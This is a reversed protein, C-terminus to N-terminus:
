VEEQEKRKRNLGVCLGVLLIGLASCSTAVVSFKLGGAKAAAEQASTIVAETSSLLGEYAATVADLKSTNVTARDAQAVKEYNAMLQKYKEVDAFTFKTNFKDLEVNIANPNYAPTFNICIIESENYLEDAAIKVYIKQRAQEENFALENGETWSGDNGTASVYITHGEAKGVVFVKNYRVDLDDITLYDAGRVGKTIEFSVECSGTYNEGDGEVLVSYIGIEVVESVVEDNKKVVVTFGTGSSKVQIADIQNQGNYPMTANRLEITSMSKTNIQLNGYSANVVNYNVAKDGCAVLKVQNEFYGPNSLMTNPDVTEFSYQVNDEAIFELSDTVYTFGTGTPSLEIDGYGMIFNDVNVSVTRKEITFTYRQSKNANFTYNDTNEIGMLIAYYEGANIPQLDQTSNYLVVPTIIDGNQIGDFYVKVDKATADYILNEAVDVRNLTLLRKTVAVSGTVEITYNDAKAGTLTASISYATGVAAEAVFGDSTYSPLVEDGEMIQNGTPSVADAALNYVDGYVKTLSGVNYKLPLPKVIFKATADVTFEYNSASLGTCAATITYGELNVNANKAFGDSTFAITVEDGEIIRQTSSFSYSLDDTFEHSYLKEAGEAIISVALKNVTFACYPYNVGGIEIQNEPAVNLTIEYNNVDINNGAVVIYDGANKVNLVPKYNESNYVIKDDEEYSTDKMYYSYVIGMNRQQQDALTVGDATAFQSYAETHDQADYDINQIGSIDISISAEIGTVEYVMYFETVNYNSYASVVFSIKVIYTGVTKAQQTSETGTIVYKGAQLEAKFYEGNAYLFECIEFTGGNEQYTSLSVGLLMASVSNYGQYVATEKYVTVDQGDIVATVSVFKEPMNALEIKEYHVNDEDNVYRSNAKEVVLSVDAKQITVKRTIKVVKGEDEEITVLDDLVEGNKSVIDSMSPLIYNDAIDGTALSIDLYYDGAIIYRNNPDFVINMAAADFVNKIVINANNPTLEEGYGQPRITVNNKNDVVIYNAKQEKANYVINHLNSFEIEIQRPAVVIEYTRQEETLDFRYNLNSFPSVYVQYLGAEKVEGVPTLVRRYYHSLTNDFGPDTRYGLEIYEGNELKYYIVNNVLRSKDVEPYTIKNYTITREGGDGTLLSETQSYVFNMAQGTYTFDVPETYQCNDVSNTITEWAGALVKQNIKYTYKPQWKLRNPDYGQTDVRYSVIRADYDVFDFKANVGYTYGNYVMIEYDGAGKIDVFDFEEFSGAKYVTWISENTYVGGAALKDYAFPLELPVVAANNLTNLSITPTSSLGEQADYTKEGISIATNRTSNLTYNAAFGYYVEIDIILNSSNRQFLGSIIDSAYNNLADELSNALEYNNRNVLVQAGQKVQINWVFMGPKYFSLGDLNVNVVAQAEENSNEWDLTLVNEVPNIFAVQSSDYTGIVNKLTGDGMQMKLNIYNPSPITGDSYGVTKFALADEKKKTSDALLNTVTWPNNVKNDICTRTEAYKDNMITEVDSASFKYYINKTSGAAAAGVLQGVFMHYKAKSSGDRATAAYKEKYADKGGTRSLAMGTWSTIVGDIEGSGCATSGEGNPNAPSYCEGDTDLMIGAIMGGFSLYNKGWDEAPDMAEAAVGGQGACTLNYVFSSNVIAGGVGGVYARIYGKQSRGKAMGGIFKGKAIEIYSNGVTCGHLVGAYGGLCLTGTGEIASGLAVLGVMIKGNIVLKMNDFVCNGAYGFILGVSMGNGEKRNHVIQGNFQINLNRFDTNKALGGFYGSVMIQRYADNNNNSPRGFPSQMEQYGPINNTGDSNVGREATYRDSGYFTGANEGATMQYEYFKYNAYKSDSFSTSDTLTITKGCGDLYHHEVRKGNVTRSTSFSETLYGYVPNAESGATNLFTALTAESNIQIVGPRNAYISVYGEPVRGNSYIFDSEASATQQVSKDFVSLISCMLAAVLIVALIILISQRKNLNTM